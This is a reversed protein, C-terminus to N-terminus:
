SKEIAEFVPWFEQFVRVRAQREADDARGADPHFHKGFEHKLRRFRPDSNLDPVVAQRSRLFAIEGRLTDVLRQQMELESRLAAITEADQMERVAFQSFSQLLQTQASGIPKARREVKGRRELRALAAGTAVHAGTPVLREGLKASQGYVLEVVIAEGHLRAVVDGPNLWDGAAKSWDVAWAPGDAPHKALHEELGGHHRVDCAAFLADRDPVFLTTGRCIIRVIIESRLSLSMTGADRGLNLFANLFQYRGM